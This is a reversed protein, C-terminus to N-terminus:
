FFIQTKSLYEIYCFTNKEILDRWFGMWVELIVQNLGEPANVM